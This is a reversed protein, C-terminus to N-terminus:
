TTVSCGLREAETASWVCPADKAPRWHLLRKAFGEDHHTLEWLNRRGEMKWRGKKKMKTKRGDEMTKWIGENQDTLEWLKFDDKWRGDEKKEEDWRNEM